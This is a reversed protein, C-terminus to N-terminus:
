GAFLIYYRLSLSRCVCTTLYSVKVGDNKGAAEPDVVETTYDRFNDKVWHSLFQDSFQGSGFLNLSGAHSSVANTHARTSTIKRVTKNDNDNVTKWMYLLLARVKDAPPVLPSCDRYAVSALALISQCFMDFSMGCMAKLEFNFPVINLYIEGVQIATLLSTSKLNFDHCFQV